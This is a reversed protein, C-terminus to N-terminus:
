PKKLNQLCELVQRQAEHFIKWAEETPHDYGQLHTIGHAALTLLESLIDDKAQREATDLSIFIDGLHSVTPMHTDSPEHTPYSLVDTPYDEGRHEANRQHITADDCIILSVSQGIGLTKLYDNLIRKLTKTSPCRHTEDLLELM